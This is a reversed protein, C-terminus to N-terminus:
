IRSSITLDDERSETPIKFHRLEETEAKKTRKKTVRTNIRPTTQLQEARMVSLTVPSPMVRRLPPMLVTEEQKYM